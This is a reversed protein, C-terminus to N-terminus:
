GALRALALLGRDAGPAAILGLGVPLSGARRVPITLQPLGGLGAACTLALIRHRLRKSADPPQGVPPPAAPTTPLCLVTDPTLIEALRARITEREARADAVNDHQAACAALFRERIGPGLNPKATEAWAAHMTGVEQVQLRTFCRAWVALGPPALTVARSSLGLRSVLRMVAQELESRVARDALAFADEAVVLRRAEVDGAPEELVVEGVSALVEPDRSMWGVTDFGPALPFVGDRAVRDHTPRLGHVGCYAAPVRVSGATDTGLAIDVNGAGAVVASGSSSGGPVRDPAAPNRPTGYHANEGDLGYTLEDCLTKGVLTAGGALLREVVPSTTTAPEHTRYWDPSGAGTVHGAIDFVDKVAFRM